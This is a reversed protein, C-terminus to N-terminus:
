RQEKKIQIEAQFGESPASTYEWEGKIIDLRSEIRKMGLGKSRNTMEFGKGNDKFKVHFAANSEKCDMKILSSGGHKIANSILEQSIRFLHLETMKDKISFGENGAQVQVEVSGTKSYADALEDMAEMFGFEELTPPLLDHAIRRTTQIASDVQTTISQFTEENVIAGNLGLRRVYLSIVNLKSGIDDHMDKAIRKREEEQALITHQVLEEQSKMKQMMARKQSLFYFLVFAVALFLMIAIGGIILFYIEQEQIDDM